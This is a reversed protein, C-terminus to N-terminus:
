RCKGLGGCRKREGTDDDAVMPEKDESGTIDFEMPIAACTASTEMRGDGDGVAGVVTEGNVDACDAEPESRRRRRNRKTFFDRLFAMRAGYAVISSKAAFFTGYVNKLLEM